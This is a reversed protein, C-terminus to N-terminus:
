TIAVPGQVMKLRDLIASPTLGEVLEGDLSVMRDGVRLTGDLDAASGDAISRIFIGDSMTRKGLSLGLSGQPKKQLVVSVIQADSPTSGAAKGVDTSSTRQVGLTVVEGGSRLMTVVEHHSKGEVAVGNVYLLTDGVRIDPHSIAPEATLQKICVRGGLSAIQVGLSGNQNRRLEIDIVGPTFNEEENEEGVDELEETWDLNSKRAYRYKRGDSPTIREPEVNRQSKSNSMQVEEERDFNYMSTTPLRYEGKEEDSEDLHLGSIAKINILNDGDLTPLNDGIAGFDSVARQRRNAARRPAPPTRSVGKQAQSSGVSLNSATGNSATSNKKVNEHSVGREHRIIGDLRAISLPVRPGCQSVLEVARHRDKGELSEDGVKVLRDGVCLGAKMGAGNDAVMKVYVGPVGNLNGDVLTLGLGNEEKLLVVDFQMGRPPEEDNSEGRTLREFNEVQSNPADIDDVTDYQPLRSSSSSPAPPPVALPRAAGRASAPTASGNTAPTKAFVASASDLPSQPPTDELSPRIPLPAVQRGEVCVDPMSQMTNELRLTSKWQRMKMMFRHQSAAFKVFYASKTHHDTYFTSEMQEETVGLAVIVFRKKDFQLTQTQPWLHEALLERAGGQEEYIRIGRPLIGIWLSSGTDPDFPSAGHSTTPKTRFVRHLHCGFDGHKQCIQIYKNESEERRTGGYHGHLESLLLQLRKPDEFSCFRKPLYHQIDFYDVIVPPPRNGFEAQLALAALEFAADRKPQIREEIIDRRCQLYLEHMTVDTKIFDLIQPYFRFRLHLVYQIRVGTRSFSKWGPPAFKELKQHDEVFFHEGDRLFTLGFFVHENLNMHQVVLFFIDRAVVDSRCAIEVKQGNLLEVVVETNPARLRISTRTLDYFEPMARTKRKGRLSARVSGRTSRRGSIRSPVLSNKRQLVPPLPEEQSSRIRDISEPAPSRVEALIPTPRAGPAMNESNQKKYQNFIDDIDEDEEAKEEAEEESEVIRKEIPKKSVPLSPSRNEMIVVAEVPKPKVDLDLRDREFESDDSEYGKSDSTRSRDFAASHRQRSVEQPVEDYQPVSGAPLSNSSAASPRHRARNARLARQAEEFPTLGPEPVIPAYRHQPSRDEIDQDEEEYFTQAKKIRKPASDVAFFGEDEDPVHAEVIEESSSSFRHALKKKTATEAPKKKHPESGSSEDEFPDRGSLTGGHETEDEDFPNMPINRPPSTVTTTPTPPQVVTTPVTSRDNKMDVFNDEFATSRNFSIDISREEIYSSENIRTSQSLPSGINGLSTEEYHSASTPPPSPPKQTPEPKASTSFATKPVHEDFFGFPSTEKQTSNGSSTSTSAGARSEEEYYETAHKVATPVHNLDDRLHSGDMSLIEEDDFDMMDDDLRNEDEDGMLEEYVCMLMSAPDRGRLQNRAMQGMRHATPRTGTMAVTLINVLSFLDVDSAEEAGAARLVAGICYVAAAQPDEEGKAWEPPVFERGVSTSPVAKIEVTGKSSIFVNDLDFATGKPCPPLRDAASVALSLLEPANLGYGRVECVEAISVKVDPPTM